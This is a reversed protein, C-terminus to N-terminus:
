KDLIGILIVAIIAIILALWWFGTLILVVLFGISIIIALWWIEMEFLFALLGIVVCILLVPLWFGTLILFVLLGIGVVIAIPIIIKKRKKWKEQKAIQEQRRQEAIEKKRQQKDIKKQRQEEKKKKEQEAMEKQREQETIEKQRREQEAIEKQREQEALARQRLEQEAMEKQRLEEQNREREDFFSKFGSVNGIEPGPPAINSGDELINYDRGIEGSLIKEKVEEFTCSFLNIGNSSIIYTFKDQPKEKRTKTDAQTPIPNETEKSVIKKDKRSSTKKKVPEQKISSMIRDLEAEDYGCASGQRNIDKIEQILKADADLLEFFRWLTDLDRHIDEIPLGEPTFHAYHIRYDKMAIVINRDKRKLEKNSKKLESSIEDWNNDFVNLVTALDLTEISKGVGRKQDEYLKDLVKTDWWDNPAIKSLIPKLFGACLRRAEEGYGAYVEVIKM